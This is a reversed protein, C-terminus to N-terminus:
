ETSDKEKDAKISPQSQKLAMKLFRKGGGKFILQSFLPKERFDRFPNLTPWFHTEVWKQGMKAGLFGVKPGM